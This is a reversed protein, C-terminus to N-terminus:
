VSFCQCKFANFSYQTPIIIIVLLVIYINLAVTGICYDCLCWASNILFWNQIAGKAFYHSISLLYRWIMLISSFNLRSKPSTGLYWCLYILIEIDLNRYWSKRYVLIAYVDLLVALTQGVALYEVAQIIGSYWLYININEM